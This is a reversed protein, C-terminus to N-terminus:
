SQEMVLETWGNELMLRHAISDRMVVGAYVKNPTLMEVTIVANHAELLPLIIPQTADPDDPDPLESLDRLFSSM